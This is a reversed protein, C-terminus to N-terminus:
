NQPVLETFSERVPNIEGNPDYTPDNNLVVTGDSGIWSHNYQNSTEIRRGTGPDVFDQRNLSDLMQQHAAHDIANQRQADAAMASDTQHQLNAQFARGNALMQNTQEQIQKQNARFQADSAAQMQEFAQQMRQSVDSDWQHDIQPPPLQDALIEQLHGHPARAFFTGHTYCNRHTMAPRRLLPMAPQATEDCTLVVGMQEDVTQGKLNYELRVKGFDILHKVQIGYQQPAAAAKERAQALVQQEKDSLPWVKINTANPHTNPVAINLLFANASTIDIPSCSPGMPNQGDSQWMWMAGPMQGKASIGDPSLVTWSLGDAPVAPAHCGKPRLILGVYKWGNPVTVTFATEGLAPDKVPESHTGSWSTKVATARSSGKSSQAGHSSSGSSGAASAAEAVGDRQNFWGAAALLLVAAVGSVILRRSM